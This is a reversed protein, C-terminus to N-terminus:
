LSYDLASGIQEGFPADPSVTRVSSITRSRCDVPVFTTSKRTSGRTDIRTGTFIVSRQTIRPSDISAM